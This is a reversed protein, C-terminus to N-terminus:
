NFSTHLHSSSRNARSPMSITQLNGKSATRIEQHRITYISPNGARSTEFSSSLNNM